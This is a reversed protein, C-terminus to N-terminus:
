ALPSLGEALRTCSRPLFRPMLRSYSCSILFPSHFTPIKFLPNMYLTMLHSLVQLPFVAPARLRCCKLHKSSLSYSFRLLWRSLSLAYIDLSVSFFFSAHKLEFAVFYRSLRFTYCLCCYFPLILFTFFNMLFAYKFLKNFICIIFFYAKLSKAGIYVLKKIVNEMFM